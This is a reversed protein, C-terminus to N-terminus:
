RRSLNVESSLILSIALLHQVKELPEMEGGELVEIVLGYGGLTEVVVLLL